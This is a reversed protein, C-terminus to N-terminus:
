KAEDERQSDDADIGLRSCLAHLAVRLEGFEQVQEPAFTAVARVLDGALESLEPTVSGRDIFALLRPGTPVRGTERFSARMERKQAEVDGGEDVSVVCHGSAFWRCVVQTTRRDPDILTSSM